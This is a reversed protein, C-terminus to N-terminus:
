RGGRQRSMHVTTSSVELKGDKVADSVIREAAEMTEESVEEEAKPEPRHAEPKEIKISVPPTMDTVGDRMSARYIFEGLTSVAARPNFGGILCVRGDPFERVRLKEGTYPDTMAKDVTVAGYVGNRMSADDLLTKLSGRPVKLSFADPASFTVSGPSIHMHVTLPKGTFPCRLRQAEPATVAISKM